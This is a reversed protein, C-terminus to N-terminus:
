DESTLNRITWFARDTAVSSIPFSHPLGDRKCVNSLQRNQIPSDERAPHLVPPSSRATLYLSALLTSSHLPRSLFPVSFIRLECISSHLFQSSFFRCSFRKLDDTHHGSYLPNMSGLKINVSDSLLEDLFKAEQSRDCELFSEQGFVTEQKVSNRSILHVVLKPRANGINFIYPRSCELSTWEIYYSFRLM